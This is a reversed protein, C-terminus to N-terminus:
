QEDGSECRLSVMWIGQICGHSKVFCNQWSEYAFENQLCVMCIYLRHCPIQPYSWGWSASGYGCLPSVMGTCSKRHENRESHCNSDDCAFVDCGNGLLLVKPGVHQRLRILRDNWLAIVDSESDWQKNQESTIIIVLDRYPRMSMSMSMSQKM